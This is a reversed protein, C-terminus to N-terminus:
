KREVFVDVGHFRFKIATVEYRKERLMDNVVKKLIPRVYKKPLHLVANRGTRLDFQFTEDALSAAKVGKKVPASIVSWVFKLAKKIIEM